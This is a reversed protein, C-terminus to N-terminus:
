YGDPGYEGGDDPAASTTPESPAVPTEASPGAAGAGGGGGAPATCGGLGVVMTLVVGLIRRSV